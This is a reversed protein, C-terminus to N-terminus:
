RGARGSSQEFVQLLTAQQVTRQDDPAALKAARRQNLRQANGSFAPAAIMMRLAKVIHIAPPPILGPWTTPFVSSRPKLTISSRTWTWSRCAVM